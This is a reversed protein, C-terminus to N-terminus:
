VPRSASRWKWGCTIFCLCERISPRRPSAFPGFSPTYELQGVTYEALLGQPAGPLTGDVLDNDWFRVTMIGPSSGTSRYYVSFGSLLANGVGFMHMDQAVPATADVLGTENGFNNFLLVPPETDDFLGNSNCDECEDPLGNGNTDESTGCALDCLDRVDNNNCDDGGQPDPTCDTPIEPECEDPRGNLNCDASTGGAIDQDDPVGNGNCDLTFCPEAATPTPQVCARLLARAEEATICPESEEVPWVGEPSRARAHIHAWDDYDTLVTLSGSASCWNGQNLDQAVPSADISGDCDWDVAGYGIGDAEILVAENLSALIGHSYDLHRFPTAATFLNYCEMGGKVGRLQYRYNMISAYNPKYNPSNTGGAHRLGLNHGLEHAFTGARDWPTGIQGSFAGLTVIFDDGNIEALGSSTTTSCSSDQYQHAFICYHWGPTGAHDYYTSKLQGYSSASGSYSFLSSGCSSPNRPIVNYHPIAEDIVVNLTHGECAFMAVVADIESQSPRHSHSGEMWDVEVNITLASSPAAPLFGVILGVTLGATTLRASRNALMGRLCDFLMAHDGRTSGQLTVAPLRHLQGVGEV